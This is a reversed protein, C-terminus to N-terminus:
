LLQASHKYQQYKVSSFLFSEDTIMWYFILVAIMHHIALRISGICIQNNQSQHCQYLFKDPDYFVSVEFTGCQASFKSHYQIRKGSVFGFYFRPSM